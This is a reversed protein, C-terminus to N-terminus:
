IVDQGRKGFVDIALDGGNWEVIYVVQSMVFDCEGVVYVKGFLRLRGTFMITDNPKGDTRPYIYDVHVEKGVFSSIVKKVYAPRHASSTAVVRMEPDPDDHFTQGITKTTLM